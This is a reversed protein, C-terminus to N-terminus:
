HSANVTLRVSLWRSSAGVVSTCSDSLSNPSFEHCILGVCV